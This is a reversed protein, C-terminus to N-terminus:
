HSVALHLQNISEHVRALKLAYDPDTAYGGSKLSEAFTQIAGANQVGEYRPEQLLRAYDQMAAEYSQYVKFASKVPTAVGEKVELSEIVLAAESGDKAKIGFLSHSNNGQGDHM